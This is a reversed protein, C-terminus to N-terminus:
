IVKKKQKKEKKSNIFKRYHLAGGSSTNLQVVIQLLIKELETKVVLFDFLQSLFAAQSGPITPPRGLFM